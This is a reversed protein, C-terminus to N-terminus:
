GWGHQAVRKGRIVPYYRIFEYSVLNHEELATERYDSRDCSPRSTSRSMGLPALAHNCFQHTPGGVGVNGPVKRGIDSLLANIPPSSVVKIALHDPCVKIWALLHEV